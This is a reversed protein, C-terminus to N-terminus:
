MENRVEQLIEKLVQLVGDKEYSAMVYGAAKRIDPASLESAYSRGARMMMSIDNYNDGFVVTEEPTIGYAEQLWQVAGGKTAGAANIDVWKAGSVNIVFKEKWCSSIQDYVGKAGEKCYLSLKICADVYDGLDEVVGGVGGYEEFVLHYFEESKDDIYYGERLSLLQQHGPIGELEKRLACLDERDMCMEKICQDGKEICAGNDGLYYIEERLEHFVADISSSQRGSAAAFQVGRHLLERIVTMYEPNVYSGGEPVLTGDIDSVILRIM